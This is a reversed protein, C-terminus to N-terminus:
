KRGKGAAKTETKSAIRNAKMMVQDMARLMRVEWASLELHMLRAYTDIAEYTIPSMGFGSQPRTSHLDFFMSFLHQHSAPFIPEDDDQDVM